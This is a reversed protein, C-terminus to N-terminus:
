YREALSRRLESADYATTPDDLRGDGMVIELSTSFRDQERSTVIQTGTYAPTVTTTCGLPGCDRVVQQTPSTTTTTVPTTTTNQQTEQNVVRFWDYDNRLTLEAARLLAKDKVEDSTDRVDGSYNIRYRNDTIRSESYGPDRLGDDYRSSGCGSLLVICAFILLKKM